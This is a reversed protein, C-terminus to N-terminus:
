EFVQRWNLRTVNGTKEDVQVVVQIVPKEKSSVLWRQNGLFQIFCLHNHLPLFATINEACEQVANEAAIFQQQSKAITNVEIVRLTSLREVYGILSSCLLLLSIVWALIM